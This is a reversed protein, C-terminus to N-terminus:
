HLLSDVEDPKTLNLRPRQSYLPNLRPQALGALTPMAWAHGRGAGRTVQHPNPNPDPNPNPNLNPNPKPKPELKPKPKTM